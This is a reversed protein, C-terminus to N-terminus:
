DEGGTMIVGDLNSLIERLVTVNDTVPILVPAGGAKLVANLYTSSVTSGGNTTRSVSIGIMPPRPSRLNTQCSDVTRNFTKLDPIGSYASQAQAQQLFFCTCLLYIWFKIRIM